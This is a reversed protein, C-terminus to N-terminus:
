SSAGRQVQKPHRLNTGLVMTCHHLMLERLEDSVSSIGIGHWRSKSHENAECESGEVSSKDSSVINESLSSVLWGLRKRTPFLSTLPFFLSPKLM